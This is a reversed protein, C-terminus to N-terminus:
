RAVTPLYYFRLQQEESVIGVGGDYANYFPVKGGNFSFEELVLDSFYWVQNPELQKLVRFKLTLISGEGALPEGSTIGGFELTSTIEGAVNNQYIGWTPNLEGFTVSVLELENWNYVIKGRFFTIDRGFTQTVEVPIEVTMGPNARVDRIAVELLIPVYMEEQSQDGDPFFARAFLWLEDADYAPIDVWFSYRDKGKCNAGGVANIVCDPPFQWIASSAAFYIQGTGGQPVLITIDLKDGNIVPSHVLISPQELEEEARAIGQSIFAYVFVVVLAVFASSWQSFRM